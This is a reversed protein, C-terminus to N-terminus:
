LSNPTVTATKLGNSSSKKVNNLCRATNPNPLKKCPPKSKPPPGSVSTNLKPPCSCINEYVVPHKLSLYFNVINIKYFLIFKFLAGVGKFHSSILFNMYGSTRYRHRTPPLRM